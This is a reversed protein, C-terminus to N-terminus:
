ALAAKIKKAKEISNRYGGEIGPEHRTWFLIKTITDPTISYCDDGEWLMIWGLEDAIAQKIRNLMANEEAPTM